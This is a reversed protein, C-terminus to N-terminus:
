QHTPSPTPDPTTDDDDAADDDDFLPTPSPTPVPAPRSPRADASTLHECGSRQPAAGIGSWQAPEWVPSGCKSCYSVLHWPAGEITSVRRIM